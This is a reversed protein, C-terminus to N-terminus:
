IIIKKYPIAEFYDGDYKNIDPIIQIKTAM